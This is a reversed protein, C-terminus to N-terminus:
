NKKIIKISEAMKIIEDKESGILNYRYETDSWHLSYRDKNFIIFGETQNITVLGVESNETDVGLGAESIIAQLFTIIEGDENIYEIYIEKNDDEIFGVSYGTPLYSPEYYDVVESPASDNSFLVDSFQEYVEIVFNIVFARAEVSTIMVTSFGIIVAIIAAAIQRKPTCTARYFLSDHNNLMRNMRKIHRKSYTFKGALELEDPYTSIWEKEFMQVAEILNKNKEALCEDKSNM